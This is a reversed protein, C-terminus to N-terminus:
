PLTKFLQARRTDIDDPNIEVGTVDEVAEEAKEILSLVDGMGLIRGAMREASLSGLVAVPNGGHEDWLDPDVRRLAEAWDTDAHPWTLM